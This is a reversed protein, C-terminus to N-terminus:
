LPLKLLVIFVTYILASGLLSVILNVLYKKQGLVRFSLFLFAFVLIGLNIKKLLLTFCALLIFIGVTRGLVLLQKKKEDASKEKIKTQESKEKRSAVILRVINIGAFLLLLIGWVTPFTKFNTQDNPNANLTTQLQIHVVSFVGVAAFFISLLLEGRKSKVM